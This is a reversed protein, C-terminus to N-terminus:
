NETILFYDLCEQLISIDELTLENLNLIQSINNYFCNSDEGLIEKFFNINDKHIPVVLMGLSKYELINQIDNKITNNKM